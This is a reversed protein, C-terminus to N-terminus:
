DGVFELGRKVSLSGDQVTQGHGPYLGKIDISNLYKISNRLSVISGGMFDTRGVGSAFVTDGSFLAHTVEDYYCVGGLTHGPTEIVRLRHDGIDIIDDKRLDKVDFGPIELGFDKCLTYMSDGERIPAADIYGAYVDCGFANSLSHAGGIHDFHCHTLLIRDITGAGIFGRIKGIIDASDLGTGSDILVNEKGMLLYINSDFPIRSVIQHIM